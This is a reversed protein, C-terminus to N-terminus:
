AEVTFRDALWQAAAEATDFAWTRAIYGSGRNDEQFLFGRECKRFVLDGTRAYNLGGILGAQQSQAIVGSM